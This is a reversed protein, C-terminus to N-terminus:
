NGSQKTAQDAIWEELAARSWRTLRGVKFPPPIQGAAALRTVTKPSCGLASAVERVDLLMTEAPLNNQM